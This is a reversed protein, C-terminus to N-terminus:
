FERNLDKDVHQLTNRLTFSPSTQVCGNTKAVCHGSTVKVFLPFPFSLAMQKLEREHPLFIAHRTWLVGACFACALLGPNVATCSMNYHNLQKKFM